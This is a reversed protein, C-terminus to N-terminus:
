PILMSTALSLLVMVFVMAIQYHMESLYVWVIPIFRCNPNITMQPAGSSRSLSFCVQAWNNQYNSEYRGLADPSYDWNVRAIFTYNGDPLTTIDIWQCDLSADYIDGCGHSIGQNGCGYQGTGGHDCVLDMVCFGSKFGIPIPTNNQGFLIYEAYGEYHWHGHCNQNNFQSNNPGPVGV